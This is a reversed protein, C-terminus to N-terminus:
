KYESEVRFGIDDIIDNPLIVGSAQVWTWDETHAIAAMWRDDFFVDYGEMQMVVNCTVTETAYQLTFSFSPNENEM